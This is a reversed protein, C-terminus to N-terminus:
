SFGERHGHHSARLLHKISIQTKSVLDQHPAPSKMVQPAAGGQPWFEFCTFRRTVPDPQSPAGPFGVPTTRPFTLSIGCCLSFNRGMEGLPPIPESYFYLYLLPKFCCEPNNTWLPTKLLVPAALSCGLQLRLHDPRARHVVGPM